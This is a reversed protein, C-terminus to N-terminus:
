EQDVCLQVRILVAVLHRGAAAEVAELLPLVHDRVCHILDAAATPTRAYLCVQLQHQLDNVDACFILRLDDPTPHTAKVHEYMLLVLLQLHM